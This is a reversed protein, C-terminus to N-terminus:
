NISHLGILLVAVVGAIFFLNRSRPSSQSNFLVAATLTGPLSLDSSGLNPFAKHVVRLETSKLHLNVFQSFTNEFKQCNEYKTCQLTQNCIEPLARLFAPYNPDQPNDYYVDLNFWFSGTKALVARIAAMVLLYDTWPLEPCFASSIPTFLDGNSNYTADCDTMLTYITGTNKLGSQGAVSVVAGGKQVILHDATFGGYTTASSNVPYVALVKCQARQSNNANTGLIIDNVQLSSVQVDGNNPTPVTMQGDICSSVALIEIIATVVDILQKVKQYLQYLKYVNNAADYIWSQSSTASYPPAPANVCLAFQAPNDTTPAPIPYQCASSSLPPGVYNVYPTPFSTPSGSGGFLSLTFAIFDQRISRSTLISDPINTLFPKSKCSGSGKSYWRKTDYFSARFVSAYYINPFKNNFAETLIHSRNLWESRKMHWDTITKFNKHNVFNDAMIVVCPPNKAKTAKETSSNSNMKHLLSNWMEAAGCWTEDYGVDSKSLIFDDKLPLIFNQIFWSFFKADLIPSQQEIWTSQIAIVSNNYMAWGEFTFPPLYKGKILPQSVVPPPGDGEDFACSWIGFYADFDFGVISIDEDMQWVKSYLPLHPLLTEFMLPKMIEDVDGFSHRLVSVHSNSAAAAEEFLSVSRSFEEEDHIANYTVVVWECKDQAYKINEILNTESDKNQLSMFTACLLQKQQPSTSQSFVLEANLLASKEYNSLNQFQIPPRAESVVFQQDEEKL